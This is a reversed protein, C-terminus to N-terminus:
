PALRDIKWGGSPDPLYRFRDHLRNRRGQWFEFHDPRVRYGGWFSPLGIDGDRFKHMLEEFKTLLMQRSTIVSSQNSVWAGIQSGKPRSMFYKASQATNVKEARGTIVVQRELDLWPFLLAVKPNQGIEQAKRSTYNTYFIFGERDFYKLLVTRISPQGSASVTSLSLANPMALGSEEAQRFWKEFQSFPDKDLDKRSIGANVFEERM